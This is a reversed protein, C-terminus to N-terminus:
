VPILEEIIRKGIFPKLATREVLDVRHGLLKGLERELAVFSVLTVTEQDDFEVLLDIDSRKKQLGHVYSGFIGLSKVGYRMRFEPMKDRLSQRILEIHNETTKNM